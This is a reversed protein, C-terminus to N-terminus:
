FFITEEDNNINQVTYPMFHTHYSTHAHSAHLIQICTHIRMHILTHAHACTYTHTRIYIYVHIPTHKYTLMYEHPHTYTHVRARARTHKHIRTPGCFISANRLKKIFGLTLNQLYHKIPRADDSLSGRAGTQLLNLVHDQGFYSFHPCLFLYTVFYSQCDAFCM